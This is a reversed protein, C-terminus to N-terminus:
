LQALLEIVVVYLVECVRFQAACAHQQRLVAIGALEAPFCCLHLIAYHLLLTSPTGATSRCQVGYGVIPMLVRASTVIM